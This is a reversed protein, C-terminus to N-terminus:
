LTEKLKQLDIDTKGMSVLAKLTENVPIDLPKVSAEDMVVLRGSTPNPSTPVFIILKTAGNDDVMRNTVLGLEEANDNLSPVLVVENFIADEGSGYGLIQKLTKYLSGLAPLKDLLRDIRTWIWKGVFTTVILGILYVIAASVLLGLGPFYFPLKSLGSSSIQAELYGITLVLGAIPLIAVAGAILCKSIHKQVNKMSIIVV